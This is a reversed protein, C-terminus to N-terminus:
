HGSKDGTFMSTLQVQSGWALGCPTGSFMICPAAERLEQSPTPKGRRKQRKRSGHFFNLWLRLCVLGGGSALDYAGVSCVWKSSGGAEASLVSWLHGVTERLILFSPLFLRSCDAAGRVLTCLSLTRTAHTLSNTDLRKPLLPRNQPLCNKQVWNPPRNPSSELVNRKDHQRQVSLLCLEPLLLSPSCSYICLPSPESM